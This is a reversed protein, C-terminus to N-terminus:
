GAYRREFHSGGAILAFLTFGYGVATVVAAGVGGEPEAGGVELGSVIGLVGALTGLVALVVGIARAWGKHMFIGLSSILHLIGVLLIIGAVVLIVTTFGTVDAMPIFEASTLEELISTLMAGALLAITGILTVLVGIILLVVGAIVVLPNTPYTAVPAWYGAQDWGYQAPWGPPPQQWHQGQYPQQWQQGPQPQQWQQAPPPQQRQEGRAPEQWQAAPQQSTWAPTAPEGEPEASPAGGPRPAAPLTPQTPGEHTDEDQPDSSPPM